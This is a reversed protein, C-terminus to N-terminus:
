GNPRRRLPLGATLVGLVEGREEDSLTPWAKVIRRAMAAPAHGARGAAAAGSAREDATLAAARGRGGSSAVRARTQVDASQMGRAMADLIGSM